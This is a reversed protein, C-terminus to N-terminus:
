QDLTKSRSLLFIVINNLSNLGWHTLRVRNLTNALDRKRKRCRQAAQRNQDRRRQQRELDVGQWLSFPILLKGQFQSVFHSMFSICLASTMVWLGCETHWLKGGHESSSTAWKLSTMILAMGDWIVLMEVTREATQEPAYWLFCWLEANTIPIWRIARVFSWYRSSIEM